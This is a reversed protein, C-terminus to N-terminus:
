RTDVSRGYDKVEQFGRVNEGRVRWYRIYLISFYMINIVKIHSKKNSNSKKLTMLDLFLIPM